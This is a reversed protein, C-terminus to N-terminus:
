SFVIRYPGADMMAETPDRMAAIAARAQAEHNRWMGAELSARFTADDRYGDDLNSQTCLARAVREVMTVPSAGAVQEERESM